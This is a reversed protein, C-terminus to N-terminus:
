TEMKFTNSNLIPMARLGRADLWREGNEKIFCYGGNFSM